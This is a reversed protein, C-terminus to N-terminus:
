VMADQFLKEESENGFWINRVYADRGVPKHTCAVSVYLYWELNKRIFVLVQKRCM